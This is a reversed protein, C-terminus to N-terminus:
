ILNMYNYARTQVFNTLSYGSFDLCKKFYYDAEDAKGMLIKLHAFEAYAMPRLYADFKPKSNMIEMFIACSGDYDRLYKLCSAKVFKILCVDDQAFPNNVKVNECEVYELTTKLQEDNLYKFINWFICLEFHPIPLGKQINYKEVKKCLMKEFPIKKGVIKQRATPVIAFYENTKEENGYTMWCIGAVYAFFSSSWRNNKYLYEAMELAEKFNSLALHIMMMDWCIYHTAPPVSYTIFRARNFVHLAESLKREGMLYRGKVFFVYIGIPYKKSEEEIWAHMPVTEPVQIEFLQSLYCYYILYIMRCLSSMIGNAEYGKILLNLALTKDADFGIIHCTKQVRPTVLSGMINFVGMGFCVFSILDRHEEVEMLNNNMLWHYTTRFNFYSARVKLLERILTTVGTDEILMQVVARLIALLSYILEMHKEVLSLKKVPPESLFASIDELFNRCYKYKKIFHISEELKKHCEEFDKQNFSMAANFFDFLSKALMMYPSPQKNVELQAEHYKSQLFLDLSHKLRVIDKKMEEEDYELGEESSNGYM